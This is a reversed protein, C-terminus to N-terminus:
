SRRRRRALLTLLMAPLVLPAHGPSRRGGVARCSCGSDRAQQTGGDTGADLEGPREGRTPTGSPGVPGPPLVPSRMRVPPEVVGGDEADSVCQEDCGDDALANGDDCQEPADTRGDGCFLHPGACLGGCHDYTANLAGDDCVEAGDVTGDGCIAGPDPPEANESCDLLVCCSNIDLGRVVGELADALAAASGTQTPDVLIATGTGGWQAYQLLQPEDLEAATGFGIVYTDIGAAAMGQLASQVDTSGQSTKGDTVLVNIYRTRSDASFPTPSQKYDDIVQQAFTLGQGTFTNPVTGVCSQSGQTQNCAPM